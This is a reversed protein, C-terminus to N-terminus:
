NGHSGVVKMKLTELGYKPTYFRWKEHTKPDLPKYIINKRLTKGFWWSKPHYLGAHGMKKKNSELTFIAGQSRCLQWILTECPDCAQTSFFPVPPSFWIFDHFDILIGVDWTTNYSLCFMGFRGLVIWDGISGTTGGLFISQAGGFQLGETCEM